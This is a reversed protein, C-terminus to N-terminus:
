PIAVAADFWTNPDHPNGALRLTEAVKRLEDLDPTASLGQIVVAVGDGEMRIATKAPKPKGIPEGFVLDAVYWAKMGNITLDPRPQPFRSMQNWFKDTTFRIRLDDGPRPEYPRDDKASADLDRPRFGTAPNGDSLDIVFNQGFGEAEGTPSRYTVRDPRLGEPLHGVKVPSGLTRTGPSVSKAITVALPVNAQYPADLQPAKLTGLERQSSCTLLAWLGDGPQWAITQLPNGQIVGLYGRPAPNFPRSPTSHVVRGPRGNLDVRPSGAPIKAPDFDGNRHVTLLCATIWPKGTFGILEYDQRNATYVRPNLKMGKPVPLDVWPTWALNRREQGTTNARDNLHNVVLPGAIAATATAVATAVVLPTRRRRRVPRLTDLKALLDDPAPATRGLHDFAARLDEETRM